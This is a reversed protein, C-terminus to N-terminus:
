CLLFLSSFSFVCWWWHCELVLIGCPQLSASIIGLRSPSSWSLLFWTTARVWPPPETYSPWEQENSVYYFSTHVTSANLFWSFGINRATRNANKEQNMRRGITPTHQNPRDRSLDWQLNSFPFSSFLFLLQLTCLSSCVLFFWLRRFPVLSKSLALVSSVPDLFRSFGSAAPPLTLSGMFCFTSMCWLSSCIGRLVTRVHCSDTFKSVSKEKKKKQLFMTIWEEKSFSILPPKTPNLVIM